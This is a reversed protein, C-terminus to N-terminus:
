SNRRELFAKMRDLAKLINESSNAYSLRIYGEGHVGFDPGGITAVGADELLASALTDGPHGLFSKGDFTFRLTKTRDIQGGDIRHSQSM